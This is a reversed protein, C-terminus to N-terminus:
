ARGGRAKALCAPCTGWFVLEAEDIEYGSGDTAVAWASDGIACDVDVVSQCTRCVVHHHDDGARPDFLAPSGGPQIRRVLGRETLVTLADYVAQMSIAGIGDRVHEAVEAATGHPREWVARLVAMRQATVQLGHDRLLTAPDEPPRM